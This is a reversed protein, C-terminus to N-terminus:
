PNSLGGGGGGGRCPFPFFLFCSCLVWTLGRLQWVLISFVLQWPFIRQLLRLPRIDNIDEFVWYLATKHKIICREPSQLQFEIVIELVTNYPM